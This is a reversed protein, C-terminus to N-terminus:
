RRVAAQLAGLWTAHDNWAIFGTEGAATQLVIHKRGGRAKHMFWKEERVSTIQDLGIEVKGGSKRLNQFVWHRDTLVAVGGGSGRSLGHISSGQYLAPSPGCQIHEHTAAIQERILDNVEDIRRRRWRMIFVWIVANILLIGVPLGIALVLIQSTGM